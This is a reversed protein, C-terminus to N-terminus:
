PVFTRIYLYSLVGYVVYKRVDTCSAEALGRSICSQTPPIPPVLTCSSGPGMGGERFRLRKACRAWAPLSSESAWFPPDPVLIAACLNKTRLSGGGSAAVAWDEVLGSLCVTRSYARHHALPISLPVARVGRCCVVVM